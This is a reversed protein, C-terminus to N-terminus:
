IWVCTMSVEAITGIPPQPASAEPRTRAGDLSTRSVLLAPGPVSSHKSAPLCWRLHPFISLFIDNILDMWEKEGQMINDMNNVAKTKM